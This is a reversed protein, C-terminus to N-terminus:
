QGFGAEFLAKIDHELQDFNEVVYHAGANRLQGPPHVGWTVGIAWTGANRGTLIDYTTDGIMVANEPEVGVERMAEQLLFPDPKGPGQDATKMCAFRGDLGANDLIQSFRQNSRSTVIALLYGADELRDLLGFVGEFVTEPPRDPPEREGRAIESHYEKIMSVERAGGGPVLFEVSQEWPLGIINRIQQDTVAPFGLASWCTRVGVVISPVSNLLTGDLDFAALRLGGRM